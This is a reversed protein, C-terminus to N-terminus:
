IWVVFMQFQFQALGGYRSCLSVNGSCTPLLRLQMRVGTALFLTFCVEILFSRAHQSFILCARWMFLKIKPQVQAFWIVHWLKNYSSAGSSSSGEGNSRQHLLLHYASRVTFKGSRTGTWIQRDCPRRSSLPIQQIIEVYRPLFVSRLKEIDWCMQDNDILSDM